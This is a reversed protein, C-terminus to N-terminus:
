IKKQEIAQNIEALEPHDNLIQVIAAYDLKAADYEEILKTLLEQDEATDLTIRFRSNDAESVDCVLSVQGSRNKWIYPTVHEKDSEEVAYEFANELLHFSFIEYDMGRPYTRTITNSYYTYPGSSIYADVGRRIIGPDILPCDSTVRIVTTVGFKKACEYYRRLVNNEDGCFVPIDNAAGFEVIPKESGDNTTAIIVPLETQRLRNIHHQLFSIGGAQKFIKNPLRTSNVRAQSIIAIM